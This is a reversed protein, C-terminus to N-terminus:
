WAVGEKRFRTFGTAALADYCKLLVAQKVASDCRQVRNMPM